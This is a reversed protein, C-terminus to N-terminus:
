SRPRLQPPLLRLAESRLAPDSWAAAGDMLAVFQALPEAPLQRLAGEDLRGLIRALQESALDVHDTAGLLAVLQIHESLSLTDAQSLRAIAQALAPGVQSADTERWALWARLVDASLRGTLEPRDLLQRATDPQGLLLACEAARATATSADQEPVVEYVRVQEAALGPLAPLTFPVQRLWFPPVRAALLRVLFTDTPLPAESALGRALRIYAGELGEWSVIVLHTIGHKRMLDRAMADTPAAYLAATAALGDRNEWYLTGLVRHGGHFALSTAVTPAAVITAPGDGTRLRLWHALDREALARVDDESGAAAARAHQVSVFLGPLVLLAAATAFWRRLGAHDGLSRFLVAVIPVTLAIGLSWWRIQVLTQFLVLAAPVLGLVLAARDEVPLRRWGTLVAATPVVLLPLVLAASAWSLGGARLFHPLSQFESIFRAHLRWLFPDAVQFSRAQTAAITLPLLLVVAAAGTAMIWERSRAAGAPARAIRALRYLVEAGAAWAIAYLPHNVELRLAVDRPLYEIAFAVLSTLAGAAGWWRFLAPRQTWSIPEGTRWAVGLAALAGLGIGLLVPVETAASIWLGVGGAVGAVVATRRSPSSLLAIVSVLACLNVLGHHDPYNAAFDIYFPYGAIAVVATWGAALSSFRRAIWLTLGILALALLAPGAILSAREIAVGWPSGFAQVDLWALTVLWWRFPQAWHVDRGRPPDDYDAHRVRWDGQAVMTQTQAIWHYGDLSRGPLLLSRVGGAYGTPSSVSRAPADVLVGYRSSLDLAAARRQVGDWAIFGLAALLVALWAAPRRLASSTPAAAPNM